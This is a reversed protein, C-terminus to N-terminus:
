ASSSPFFLFLGRVSSATGVINQKESGGFLRFVESFLVSLAAFLSTIRDKNDFLSVNFVVLLSLEDLNESLKAM